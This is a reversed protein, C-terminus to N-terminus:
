IPVGAALIKERLEAARTPDLENSFLAKFEAPKADFQEVLDKMRYGHRTLTPELDDIQRSLISEVVEATVAGGDTEYGAELSQSLHMQIQLPTRLKTALMAIAEETIISDLAMKEGTCESLLFDLYERQSDAIGDM